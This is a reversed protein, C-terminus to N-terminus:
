VELSLIGLWAAAYANELQPARDARLLQLGIGDIVSVLLAAVEDLPVRLRVGLRQFLADLSESIERLFLSEVASVAHGPVPTDPGSISFWARASGDVSEETLLKWSDAVADSATNASLATSWRNARDVAIHHAVAAWLNQKNKFHYHVLGKACGAAEAVAAISVRSAGRERLLRSATELLMAQSEDAELRRRTM